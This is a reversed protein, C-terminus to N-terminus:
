RMAAQAAQSQIYLPFQETLDRVQQKVRAVTADDKRTLVADILDAIAEM